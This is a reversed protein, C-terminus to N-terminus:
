TSSKVPRKVRGRAPDFRSRQRAGADLRDPKVAECQM